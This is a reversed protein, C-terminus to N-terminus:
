YNMNLALSSLKKNNDSHTMGATVLLGTIKGKTTRNITQEILRRWRGEFDENDNHPLPQIILYCFM